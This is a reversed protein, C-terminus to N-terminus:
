RGIIPAEGRKLRQRKYLWRVLLVVVIVVSFVMLGIAGWAELRLKFWIQAPDARLFSLGFIVSSLGLLGLAGGMGRSPFRKGLWESILIIALSLIAGLLQVPVHTELLGWEDRGPLAWWAGSVAGYSSGSAWSGLWATIALTGALPLFTDALVSIPYKLLLAIIIIGLVGGALAGIGSLGGLWVQIIKDMHGQYYSWGVIVTLARAGILAALLIGLSADLYRTAEKQPARWGALLLGSLAGLGLFISFLQM